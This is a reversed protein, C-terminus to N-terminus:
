YSALKDYEYQITLKFSKMSVMGVNSSLEYARFGVYWYDSCYQGILEPININGSSWNVVTYDGNGMKVRLQNGYTKPSTGKTASVKASVIKADNPLSTMDRYANTSWSGTNATLSSPTLTKTTTVTSIYEDVKITYGTNDTDNMAYPIVALYYKTYSNIPDTKIIENANGTRESSKLLNHNEDFLYLDYDNGYAVNEMKIAIRGNSGTTKGFGLYYCDVADIDYNHFDGLMSWYTKNLLLSVPMYEASEFSDNLMLTPDQMENLNVQSEQEHYNGDDDASATVTGFMMTVSMLAAIVVAVTKKFKKM